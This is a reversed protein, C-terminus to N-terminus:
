QNPKCVIESTVRDQTWRLIVDISATPAEPSTVAIRIGYDGPLSFMDSWNISSARREKPVCLDVTNNEFIALLDIYDSVGEHITKGAAPAHAIPLPPADGTLLPSDGRKVSILRAQCSPVNGNQADVRIRYWDCRSQKVFQTRQDPVMFTETYIINRLICGADNMDFSCKLRPKPRLNEEQKARIRKVFPDNERNQKELAKAQREIARTHAEQAEIERLRAPIAQETAAAFMQFPAVFIARILFIIAWAVGTYIFGWKVVEHWDHPDSMQRGRYEFYAGVAGVGVIGAWNFASSLSGRLARTFCGSVYTWATKVMRVGGM